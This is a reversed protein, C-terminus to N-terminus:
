QKKPLKVESYGTVVLEQDQNSLKCDIKAFKNDPTIELVTLEVTITDGIYVPRLFELYQKTHITGLGPLQTGLVTCIFSSTLMGHAIRKGFRTGAAYVENVHVPNFDGTIGAFQYIDSEAITKSFRAQDGVSISMIHQKLNQSYCRRL